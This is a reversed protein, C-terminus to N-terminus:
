YQKWSEQTKLTNNSKLQNRFIKFKNSIHYENIKDLNDLYERMNPIHKRVSSIYDDDSYDYKQKNLPFMKILGKNPFYSDLFELSDSVSTNTTTNIDTNTNKTIIVPITAPNTTSSDELGKTFDELVKTKEELVISSDELGKTFDELVDYNLTIYFGRGKEKNTVKIYGITELRDRITGATRQEIGCLKAFHEETAYCTGLSCLSIIEALMIRQNGGKLKKDLLIWYPISLYRNKNKDM